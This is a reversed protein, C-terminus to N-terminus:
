CNTKSNTRRLDLGKSQSSVPNRLLPISPPSPNSRRTQPTSTTSFDRKTGKGDTSSLSPEIQALLTM